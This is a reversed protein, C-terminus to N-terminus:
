LIGQYASPPLLTRSGNSSLTTPLRSSSWFLSTTTMHTTSLITSSEFSTTHGCAGMTEGTMCTSCESRHMGTPRGQQLLASWAHLLTMLCIYRVRVTISSPSDGITCHAATLVWKPHILTGGCFHSTSQLSVLWPYQRPYEVPGGGVIRPVIRPAATATPPSYCTTINNWLRNGCDACDEGLDCYAFEAGPGGDDCSSDSAYACDNSCRYQAPPPPPPSPPRAPSPPLPLRYGCDICDTCLPRSRQLARPPLISPPARL